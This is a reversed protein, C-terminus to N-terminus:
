GSFDCSAPTPVAILVGTIAVVMVTPVRDNAIMKPTKRVAIGSWRSVRNAIDDPQRPKM